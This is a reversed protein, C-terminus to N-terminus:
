NASTSSRRLMIMTRTIAQTARDSAERSTRWPWIAIALGAVVLAAFAARYGRHSRIVVPPTEGATEDLEAAADAVDRLPLRQDKEICRRLLKRIGAPTALPLRTWDPERELIAAFTDTTTDRAFTARGTLMEYLVCGFAWIDTRKDVALGRAQEPSMYAATGVILGARTGDVTITPSATLPSGAALQGSGASELKALGFDLV